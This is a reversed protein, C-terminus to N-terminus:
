ITLSQQLMRAKGRQIMGSLTTQTLPRSCGTKRQVDAGTVHVGAKKTGYTQGTVM